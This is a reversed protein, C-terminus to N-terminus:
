VLRELALREGLAHAFGDVKTCRTLIQVRGLFAVRRFSSVPDYATHLRRLAQLGSGDGANCM